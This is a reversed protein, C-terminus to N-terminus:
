ILNIKTMFRFDRTINKMEDALKTGLVRLNDLDDKMSQSLDLLYYLDVPYDESQKYKIKINIKEGSLIKQQM